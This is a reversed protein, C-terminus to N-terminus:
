SLADEFFAPLDIVLSTPMGEPKWEMQESFVEGPDGLSRWRSVIRAETDVIWYEPVGSKLYLERKVQYDYLPNSPSTVEAALLLENLDVPDEPWVGERLRLVYVDPQVRNRSRDGRRVDSPSMLVRGVQATKLYPLLRAYLAGVILQHVRSPSPSVYLEGDIIEYRQGDDPLADLMEVTWSGPETFAPMGM